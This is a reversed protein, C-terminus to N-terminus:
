HLVYIERLHIPCSKKLVRFSDLCLWSINGQKMFELQMVTSDFRGNFEITVELSVFM